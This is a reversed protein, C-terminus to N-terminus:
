FKSSYYPCSVGHIGLPVPSAGDVRRRTASLPCPFDRLPPANPPPMLFSRIGITGLTGSPRTWPGANLPSEPVDAWATESRCSSVRPFETTPDEPRLTDSLGKSTSDSQGSWRSTSQRGTDGSDHTAAGELSSISNGSVRAGRTVFPRSLSQGNSLKGTAGYLFVGFSKPGMQHEDIFRAEQENRIDTTGPSRFPVSRNEAIQIFLIPNGGDTCQRNRRFPLAKHKIEPEPCPIKVAQINTRKEFFQEFM